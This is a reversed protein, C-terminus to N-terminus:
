FVTDITFTLINTKDPAAGAGKAALYGELDFLGAQDADIIDYQLKLAVGASMDYRVGLGIRTADFQASTQLVSVLDAMNIIGNQDVDLRPDLTTGPALTSLLTDLATTTERDKDDTSEHFGYSIHPMWPGFRYGASIFMSSQDQTVGDVESVTVEGLLLLDGPEYRFSASTFSGDKSGTGNGYILDALSIIQGNNGSGTGLGAGLTAVRVSWEDASLTVSVSFIDDVTFDDDATNGYVGQVQLGYDGVESDWTIDVGDINAFTDLLSYTEAPMLAWPVAYGVDLYESLMYYPARIRGIKGSFNDDFQHRFYAWEMNTAFDNSGRAVLQTIVSSQSNINFSMQIGARSFRQFNIDDSVGNYSISEDSQTIGFTAYGNIRLRQDQEALRQNMRQVQRNLQEVTVAQSTLSVLLVPIAALSMRKLTM